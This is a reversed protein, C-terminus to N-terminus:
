KKERELVVLDQRDKSEFAKPRAGEPDKNFCITVKGKEIKYIGRFGDEPAPGFKAPALTIEKPQKMPDLRFSLPEDSKKGKITMVGKAFVIRTGVKDAIAKGEAEFLVVKWAGELAKRDDAVPDPDPRYAALTLVAALIAAIRV